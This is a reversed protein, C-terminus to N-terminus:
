LPFRQDGGSDVRNPLDRVAIKLSHVLPTSGNISPKPDFLDYEASTFDNITM